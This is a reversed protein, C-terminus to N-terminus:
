SVNIQLRSEQWMSRKTSSQALHRHTSRESSLWFPRQPWFTAPVGAVGTATRSRIYGFDPNHRLRRGRCRCSPKQARQAASHPHTCGGVPLALCTRHALHQIHRLLRTCKAGLESGNEAHRLPRSCDKNRVKPQNNRGKASAKPHQDKNCNMTRIPSLDTNNSYSKRNASHITRGRTTKNRPSADRSTHGNANPLISAWVLLLDNDRCRGGRSLRDDKACNCNMRRGINLCCNSGKARCSGDKVPSSDDKPRCGVPAWSQHSADSGCNHCNQCCWYVCPFAGRVYSRFYRGKASKLTRARLATANKHCNPLHRASRRCNRRRDSM